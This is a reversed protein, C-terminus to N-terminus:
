LDFLVIAISTERFCSVIKYRGNQPMFSDFLMEDLKSIPGVKHRVYIVKIPDTALDWAKVFCVLVFFAIQLSEM